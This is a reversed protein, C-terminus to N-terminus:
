RTPPLQERENRQEGAAGELQRKPVFVAFEFGTEAFQDTQQDRTFVVFNAEPGTKRVSVVVGEAGNAPGARLMAKKRQEPPLGPISIEYVGAERMTLTPAGGVRNRKTALTGDPQVVIYAVQATGAPPEAPVPSAPLEGATMPATTAPATSEPQTPTSTSTTDEEDLVSVVFAIGAFALAGLAALVLLASLRDPRAAPAPAAVSGASSPARVARLALHLAGLLGVFAITVILQGTSL